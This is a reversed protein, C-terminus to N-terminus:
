SRGAVIRQYLLELIAAALDRQSSELVVALKKHLERNRNMQQAAELTGQETLPGGAGMRSYLEDFDAVTWGEFLESHERVVEDVVPNTQRDFTRYALQQPELFLEEVPVGLGKALRGLTRVHARKTGDLIGQITRKDLGTQQAVQAITLDDAAMLRRLNEGARQLTENSKSSM